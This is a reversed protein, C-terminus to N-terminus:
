EVAITNGDIRLRVEQLDNLAEIVEEPSANRPYRFHIRVDPISEPDAAISLGYADAIEDLADALTVNDFDFYMTTDTGDTKQPSVAHTAPVEKPTQNSDQMPPSMVGIRVLLVPVAIVMVPLLLAAAAYYFWRPTRNIHNRNRRLQRLAETTEEATPMDGLAEGFLTELRNDDTINNNNHTM